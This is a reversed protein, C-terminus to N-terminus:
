SCVSLATHIQINSFTLPFGVIHFFSVLGLAQLLTCSFPDTPEKLWSLIMIM